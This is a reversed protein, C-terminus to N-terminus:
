QHVFQEPERVVRFDGDDHDIDLADARGRPHGGARLLAVNELAGVGRMAVGFMNQEEGGIGGLTKLEGRLAKIKGLAELRRDEHEAIEVDTHIVPYRRLKGPVIGVPGVASAYQTRFLEVRYRFKEAVHRLIATVDRGAGQRPDARFACEERAAGAVGFVAVVGFHGIVVLFHHVPEQEFMFFGGSEHGGRYDFFPFARPRSEDRDASTIGRNTFSAISKCRLADRHIVHANASEWEILRDFREDGRVVITVHDLLVAIGLKVREENQFGRGGLFLQAGYQAVATERQAGAEDYFGDHTRYQLRFLFQIGDMTLGFTACGLRTRLSSPRVM